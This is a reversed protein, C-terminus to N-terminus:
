FGRVGMERRVPILVPAGGMSPYRPLEDVSIVRYRHGTVRGGGKAYGQRRCPCSRARRRGVVSEPVGRTHAGYRGDLTWPSFSPSVPSLAPSSFRVGTKLKSPEQEAM